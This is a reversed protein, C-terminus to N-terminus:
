DAQEVWAAVEGVFAALDNLRALHALVREDDIDRVSSRASKPIGRLQRIDDAVRDLSDSCGNAILWRKDGAARRDM